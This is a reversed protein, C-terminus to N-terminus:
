SYAKHQLAIHDALTLEKNAKEFGHSFKAWCQYRVTIFTKAINCNRSNLEKSQVCVLNPTPASSIETAGNKWNQQLCGSTQRLRLICLATGQNPLAASKACWGGGSIVSSGSTQHIFDSSNQNLWTLAQLRGPFEKNVRKFDLPFVWIQHGGTRWTEPWFKSSSWKARTVSSPYSFKRLLVSSSNLHDLKAKRKMKGNQSVSSNIQKKSSIAQQVQILLVSQWHSFSLCCNCCCQFWQYHMLVSLCRFSIWCHRINLICVFSACTWSWPETRREGPEDFSNLFYRWYWLM